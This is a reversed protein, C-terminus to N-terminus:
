KLRQEHSKNIEFISEMEWLVTLFDRNGIPRGKKILALCSWMCLFTMLVQVNDRM